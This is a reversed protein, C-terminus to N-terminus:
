IYTFYITYLCLLHRIMFTVDEEASICVEMGRASTGDRDTPSLGGDHCDACEGQKLIHQARAFSVFDQGAESADMLFTSGDMTAVSMLTSKDKIGSSRSPQFAWCLAMTPWSYASWLGHPKFHPEGDGSSALRWLRVTRDFSSSVFMHGDPHWATSTVTNSHGGELVQLMKWVVDRECRWVRIKHDAAGTLLLPSGDALNRTPQFSVSWVNSFCNLVEFKQKQGPLQLSQLYGRLPTNFEEPPPPPELTIQVNAVPYVHATGDWSASALWAGDGSFTVDWIREKHEALVMHPIWLKEGAANRM